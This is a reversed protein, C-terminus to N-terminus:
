RFNSIKNSNLFNFYEHMAENRTIPNARAYETQFKTRFQNYDSRYNKEKKIDGSALCSISKLMNGILTYIPLFIFGIGVFFLVYSITQTNDYVIKDFIM